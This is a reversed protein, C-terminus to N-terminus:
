TSDAKDEIDAIEKNEWQLIRQSRIPQENGVCISYLNFQYAHNLLLAANFFSSM